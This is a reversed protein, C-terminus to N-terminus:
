CYTAGLWVKLCSWSPRREWSQRLLLVPLGDEAEVECPSGCLISRISPSALEVRLPSGRPETGTLMPTMSEPTSRLVWSRLRAPPISQELPLGTWDCLANM